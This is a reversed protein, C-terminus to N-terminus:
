PLSQRNVLHILRATPYVRLRQDFRRRLAIWPLPFPMLQAFTRLDGIAHTILWARRGDPPPLEVAKAMLFIHPLTVVFGTRLHDLLSEGFDVVGYYECTMRAQDFASLQGSARLLEPIHYHRATHM